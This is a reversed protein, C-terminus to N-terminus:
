RKIIPMKNPPVWWMNHIVTVASKPFEWAYFPPFPAVDLTV